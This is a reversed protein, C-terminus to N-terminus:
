ARATIRNCYFVLICSVGLCRATSFVGDCAFPYSTRVTQQLRTELWAIHKSNDPGADMAVNNLQDLLLECFSSTTAIDLAVMFPVALLGTMIVLYRASQTGSPNGHQQDIIDNASTDVALCFFGLASFTAFGSLAALGDGFVSLLRMIGRLELAPKGVEEHWTASSHPLSHDHQKASHIVELIHDRAVCSACRMTPLFGMFLLTFLFFWIGSLGYWIRLGVDADRPVLGGKIPRIAPILLVLGLAFCLCCVTVTVWDARALRRAATVSIRVHGVGLLELVGGPRTAAQACSFVPPVCLQGAVLLLTATCLLVSPQQWGVAAAKASPYVSATFITVPGCYFLQLARCGWSPQGSPTSLLRGLWLAGLPFKSRVANSDEELRLELSDSAITMRVLEDDAPNSRM